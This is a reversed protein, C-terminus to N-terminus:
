HNPLATIMYAKLSVLFQFINGNFFYKPSASLFVRQISFYSALRVSYWPFCVLALLLMKQPGSTAAIVKCLEYTPAKVLVVQKEIKCLLADRNQVSLCM